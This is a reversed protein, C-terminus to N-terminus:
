DEAAPLWTAAPRQWERHEPSLRRRMTTPSPHLVAVAVRVLSSVDGDAVARTYSRAALLRQGKRLHTWALWRRISNLNAGHRAALIRGEAIMGTPDLTAQGRHIRYAVLPSCVCAPSGSSALRLWLDWDALHRLGTDFGGVQHFAARRIMVNSCGAPMLNRQRLKTVLEEPPPPPEGGLLVGREDIEVVGSYVWSSGLSEAAALQRVLKQPSWLDDDDLFAIWAGGASRAGINRAAAVRLPRENKRVHVRRDSLSRVAETTGDTSGDDVVLVEFELGEQALVSRITRLLLERRNHTPIVVSVSPPV